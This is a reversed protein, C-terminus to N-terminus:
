KFLLQDVNQVHFVKAYATRYCWAYISTRLRLASINLFTNDIPYEVVLTGERSVTVSLLVEGDEASTFTCEVLRHTDEVTGWTAVLGPFAETDEGSLPALSRTM